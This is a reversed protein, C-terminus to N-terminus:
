KMTFALKIALALKNSLALRDEKIIKTSYTM